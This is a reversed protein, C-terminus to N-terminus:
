TSWKMSPISIPKTSIATKMQWPTIPIMSRRRRLMVRLSAM